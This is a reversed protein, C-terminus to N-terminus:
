ALAKKAANYQKTSVWILGEYKVYVRDGGAKIFTFPEQGVKAADLGLAQCVAIGQPGPEFECVEEYTPRSVPVPPREAQAASYRRLLEVERVLNDYERETIVKYEPTM